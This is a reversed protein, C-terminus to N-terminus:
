WIVEDDSEVAASVQGISHTESNSLHQPPTELPSVIPRFNPNLHFSFQKEDEGSEQVKVYGLINQNPVEKSLTGPNNRKHHEQGELDILLVCNGFEKRQLMDIQGKSIMTQLHPLSEHSFPDTNSGIIGKTQYSFNRGKIFEQASKEDTFHTLRVWGVRLPPLTELVKDISQGIENKAQWLVELRSFVEKGLESYEKFGASTQYAVTGFIDSASAPQLMGVIVSPLEALAFFRKGTRNTEPMYSQVSPNSSSGLLFINKSNVSHLVLFKGLGEYISRGDFKGWPLHEDIAIFLTKQGNLLQDFFQPNEQLKNELTPFSDVDIFQETVGSSDQKISYEDDINLLLYESNM